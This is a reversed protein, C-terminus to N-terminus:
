HSVPAEQGLCLKPPCSALLWDGTRPLEGWVAETRHGAEKGKMHSAGKEERPSRLWEYM